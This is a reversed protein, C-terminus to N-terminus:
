SIHSDTDVYVDGNQLAKVNEYPGVKRRYFEQKCSELAGIVTNYTEYRLEHTVLFQKIVETLIFNLEGGNAISIHQLAALFEKFYDKNQETLYPM